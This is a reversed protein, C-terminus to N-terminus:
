DMDTERPIEIPKDNTCTIYESQQINDVLWCGNVSNRVVIIADMQNRQFSM